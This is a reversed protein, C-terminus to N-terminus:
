TTWGHSYFARAYGAPAANHRSHEFRVAVQMTLAAHAMSDLVRMMTVACALATRM